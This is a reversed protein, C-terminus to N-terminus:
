VGWNESEFKNQVSQIYTHLLLTACNMGLSNINQFFWVVNIKTENWKSNFLKPIYLLGYIHHLLDIASFVKWVKNSYLFIIILITPLVDQSFCLIDYRSDPDYKVEILSLM